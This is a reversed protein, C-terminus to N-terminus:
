HCQCVSSQNWGRRWERYEGSEQQTGVKFNEKSDKRKRVGKKSVENEGEDQNDKLHTYPLLILAPFSKLSHM